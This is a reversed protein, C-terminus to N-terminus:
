RETSKRNSRLQGVGEGLSKRMFYNLLGFVIAAFDLSMFVSVLDAGSMEAKDCNFSAM